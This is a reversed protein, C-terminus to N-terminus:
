LGPPDRRQDRGPRRDRPANEVRGRGILGGALMAAPWGRAAARILSRQTMRTVGPVAYERKERYSNVRADRRDPM